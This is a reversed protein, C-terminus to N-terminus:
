WHLNNKYCSFLVCNCERSHLSCGTTYKKKKYFYNSGIAHCADELIKFKYKKKISNINELDCVMGGHHM